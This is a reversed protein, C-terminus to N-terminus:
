TVYVTLTFRCETVAQIDLFGKSLVPAIDSIKTVAVPSSGVAVYNTFLCEIM